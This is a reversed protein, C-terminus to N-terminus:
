CKKEWRFFEGIYYKKNEFIINKKFCQLYKRGLFKDANFKSKVLTILAYDVLNNKLAYNYISAGGIIWSDGYQRLAEELSDFVQVDGHVELKHSIVCNIRDKLFGHPLSELTRRGMIVPQYLTKHRFFLLDEYFGWPIKGDKSIGYDIDVCAILKVM